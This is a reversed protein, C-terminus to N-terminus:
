IKNNVKYQLRLKNLREALDENDYDFNDTYLIIEFNELFIFKLKKNPHRKLINWESFANIDKIEHWKFVGYNRIMIKNKDAIIDYVEEETKIKKYLVVCAISYAITLLLFLFLWKGQAAVIPLILFLPFLSFILSSILIIWNDKIKLIENDNTSHTNM